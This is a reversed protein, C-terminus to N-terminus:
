SSFEAKLHELADGLKLPKSKLVQAAKSTDLSSDAPRKAAFSFDRMRTPVLLSKDLGFVDALRQAFDFRSVRSAGSLHYIGTLRREAVELTMEALSSNLTPSNWQDVFVKAAENRRLKKLLWLAFNVKGAAPNAGYIVSPRAVCFERASKAVCEEAKLKTYAYYSIPSPQDTEKYCGKEGDFVYDTSIFLLFADTAKAAQVVNRTGQVNVRWALEKNLECKDVDTLTAAHVVVDPKAEKFAADVKREDSIDVQVPIGYAAKHENHFAYVQYQRAVALEALKSGYLGSAGTVLLKM